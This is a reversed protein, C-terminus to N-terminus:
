IKNPSLRKKENGFSVPDNIIFPPIEYVNGNTDELATVNEGKLVIGSM